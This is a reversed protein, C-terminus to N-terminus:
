RPRPTRPTLFFVPREPDNDFLVRRQRELTPRPQQQLARRDAPSVFSLSADLRSAEPRDALAVAAAPGSELVLQWGSAANGGFSPRDREIVRAGCGTGALAIAALTVTQASALRRV